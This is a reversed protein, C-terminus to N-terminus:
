GKSRSAPDFKLTLHEGLINFGIVVLTIAIGPAIILLPNSELYPKADAMMQGWEPTPPQIGLGLFSLMAVTLLINGADASLLIVLPGIVAPILHRGLIRRRSAGLVTLAEVYPLRRTTRVQARSLRAYIPWWSVGLALVITAMSPGVIGLLALGLILSPLAIFLDAGRMLLLDVRGGLFGATVGVLLGISVAFGAILTVAVLSTRAGALIRSFEDRGLNDTGLMHTTSPQALTGSLDQATPDYPTIVPGFIGLFVFVGVAVVAPSLGRIRGGARLRPPDLARAGTWPGTM